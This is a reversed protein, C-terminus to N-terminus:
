LSSAFRHRWPALFDDGTLHFHWMRAGACPVLRGGGQLERRHRCYCRHRCVKGAMNADVTGTQMLHIGTLTPPGLKDDEPGVNGFKVTYGFRTTIGQVWDRVGAAVV